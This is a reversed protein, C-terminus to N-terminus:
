IIYSVSLMRSEFEKTGSIDRFTKGIKVTSQLNKYINNVAIVYTKSLDTKTLIDLLLKLPVSDYAKGLDIFVLHTALNRDTRKGISGPSYIHDEQELDVKNKLQRISRSKKWSACWVVTRNLLNGCDIWKRKQLRPQHPACETKPPINQSGKLCKNFLDTLYETCCENMFEIPIEGLGPGKGNKMQKWERQLEEQNIKFIETNVRM